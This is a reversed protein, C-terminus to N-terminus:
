FKPYKGRVMGREHELKGSSGNREVNSSSEKALVLNGTQAVTGASERNNQQKTKSRANAKSQHRKVPVPRVEQFKTTQEGRLQRTKGIQGDRRDTARSHRPTHPSDFRM